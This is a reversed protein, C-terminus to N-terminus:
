IYRGFLALHRTLAWDAFENFLVEGGGDIDIADFEGEPDDVAGGGWEELM